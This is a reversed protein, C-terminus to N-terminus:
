KFAATLEKPFSTVVSITEAQAALPALLAILASAVAIRAFSFQM